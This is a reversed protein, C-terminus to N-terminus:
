EFFEEYEDLLKKLYSILSNLYAVKIETTLYPKEQFIAKALRYIDIFFDIEAKSVTLNSRKSEELFDLREDIRAPYSEPFALVGDLYATLWSAVAKIDYLRDLIFYEYEERQKNEINQYHRKTLGRIEIAIWANVAAIFIVIIDSISLEYNM